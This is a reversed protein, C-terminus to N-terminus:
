DRMVELALTFTEGSAPTYAGRAELLAFINQTGTAPDFIIESGVSPTTICKVGDSFARANTGTMDFDLSGIYTLANNTQFTAGDGNAATPSTKYLHARFIANTTSVNSKTLRGRRILGTKDNARSAALVLPAVNGVVTDNAVLQGVVYATVNAPRNFSASVVASNGGVEGIHAEGAATATTLAAQVSASIQKFVSMLSIATADTATSKADTKAGLTINAGDAVTSAFNGSGTVAHTAVTLSGGLSAAAAQVSASIQKFVSVLSVSTADTAPNKADVKTGIVEAGTSDLIAHAPINEDTNVVVTKIKVALGSAFDKVNWFAM